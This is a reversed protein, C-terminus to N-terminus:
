WATADAASLLPLWFSAHLRPTPWCGQAVLARTSPNAQRELFSRRQIALFVALRLIHKERFRIFECVPSDKGKLHSMNRRRDRSLMGQVVQEWLVGGQLVVVGVSFYM